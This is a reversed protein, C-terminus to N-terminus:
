FFHPLSFSVKFGKRKFLKVLEKRHPSIKDFNSAMQTVKLGQLEICTGKGDKYAVIITNGNAFKTRACNNFEDSTRLYDSKTKLITFRFDELETNDFILLSPHIKITALENFSEAVPAPTQSLSSFIVGKDGVFTFIKEIQELSYDKFVEDLQGVGLFVGPQYALLIRRFADVSLDRKKPISLAYYIFDTDCKVRSTMFELFGSGSKGFHEACFAKPNGLFQKSINPIKNVKIANIKSDKIFLSILEQKHSFSLRSSLASIIKAISPLYVKYIIVGHALFSFLSITLYYPLSEGVLKAVEKNLHGIKVLYQMYFLFFFIAIGLGIVPFFVYLGFIRPVVGKDLIQIENLIPFQKFMFYRKFLSSQLFKM